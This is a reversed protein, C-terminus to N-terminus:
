WNTWVPRYSHWNARLNTGSYGLHLTFTLIYL